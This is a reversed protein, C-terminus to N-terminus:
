RIRDYLDERRWPIREVIGLLRPNELRKMFSQRAREYEDDDGNAIMKRIANETLQTMSVGRSAAYVRFKKLLDEPLSITVNKHNAKV